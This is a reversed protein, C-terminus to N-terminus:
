DLVPEVGTATATAPTRRRRRVVIVGAALAALAGAVAGIIGWPLGEDPAPAPPKRPLLPKIARIPKPHPPEQVPAGAPAHAAETPPSSPPAASGVGLSAQLGQVKQELSGLQVRLEANKAGLAVCAQAEPAPRACSPAPAATSGHPERAAAAAAPRHPATQVPLAAPAAKVVPMAYPLRPAVPPAPEDDFTVPVVPGKSSLPAAAPVAPVVPAVPAVPPAPNPDPTLWLTALRVSRQGGDVLELYLHLHDGDVPRLSTVHVFQRGDRRMVSLHVTSLVAPMAIGAGSYVERDAVRVRVPQSGDEVLALEIDAALPQGVYSAIRVDGLEAARAPGCALSGAAALAALLRSLTRSLIRPPCSHM